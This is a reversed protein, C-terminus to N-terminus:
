DLWPTIDLSGSTTQELIAYYEGRQQRIQASLSYFRHQSSESRALSMDAIARGIRGNGDEFPHVTVFWLHAIAAKLVPDMSADGNFWDLFLGMERAVRAAQPAEFHVRERGVPGSIVQMPGTEDGRWDGVRIKILGSRGTPFLAAHWAFLREATLPQQYARTADLMMKVVGEVNRDVPKLAGIDIGLRRALSSRVQEADLNEGEIESSKLVDASLTQLEAEQRLPFGLAEM